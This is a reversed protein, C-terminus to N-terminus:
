IWRRRRRQRHEKLMDFKVHGVNSGWVLVDFGVAVVEGAKAGFGCREV